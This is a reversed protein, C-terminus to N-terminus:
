KAASPEDFMEDFMWHDHGQSKLFEIDEKTVKRKMAAEEEQQTYPTNM